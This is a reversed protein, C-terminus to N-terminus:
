PGPVPVVNVMATRSRAVECRVGARGIPCPCWERMRQHRAPPPSECGWCRRWPATDLLARASGNDTYPYDVSFVLRDIGVTSLACQLPPITTYGSTTFWVNTQFYDAVDRRMGAVPSLVTDIRALAFPIMEGMHGVIIRLDPIRDFVGTSILRLVHVATEAHWGWGATALLDALVPPLGGFYIEAVQPPPFSPHLYMPVGLDSAASLVPAFQPDDLFRGDVLGNIM